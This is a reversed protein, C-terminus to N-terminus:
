KVKRRVVEAFSKGEIKSELWSIIDFEEFAKKEYKDKSLPLLEKHLTRFSELIEKQSMLHANKRLYSLIIAEVKYLRQSKLLFRYTSKIFYELSDMNGLEYHLILNFIRAMAQIDQRIEPSSENIVKNSWQLSKRYEGAGFYIYKISNHFVIEYQSHIKGAFKILGTEAEKVASLGQVFEGTKIYLNMKLISSFIFSTLLIDESAKICKLSSVGKIKEITESMEDFKKLEMQSIALNNLAPLYNKMHIEMWQPNAETIEVFRKRYRYGNLLDGKMEYYVGNIYFFYIKATFSDANVEKKLLPNSIIKDFLDIESKKRLQHASAVLQAVNNSLTRYTNITEMKHLAEREEKALADLTKLDYLRSEIRIIEPIFAFREYKYALKKIKLIVKRCHSYLSKEYLVEADILLEKITVDINSQSHFQRLSKQILSFLYNKESPLHKIFTEGIFKNKIKNEDYQKQKEIADFLRIYNNQGERTYSATAFM